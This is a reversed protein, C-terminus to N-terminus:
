SEILLKSWNHKVHEWEFQKVSQSVLESDFSYVGDFYGKMEATLASTDLHKSLLGNDGHTIVQSFTLNDWALVPAGLHLAEILSNSVGSGGSVNIVLDALKYYDSVNNKAGLFQPAISLISAKTAYADLQGKGIFVLESGDIINRPLNAYAELIFDIGKIPRVTGVHLFIVKGDAKARELEVLNDSNNDIANKRVDLNVGNPIVISQSSYFTELYVSTDKGNAVLHDAFYIVSREVARIMYQMLKPKRLDVADQALSGRVSCIISGKIRRFMKLLIVSFMTPITSLVLNNAHKDVTFFLKKFLTLSWSVMTAYSHFSGIYIVRLNTYGEIDFVIQSDAPPTPCYLTIETTEDFSSIFNNLWTDIGGSYYPFPSHHFINLKKM